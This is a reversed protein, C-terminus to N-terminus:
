LSAKGLSLVQLGSERSVRRQARLQQPGRATWNGTMSSAAEASQPGVKVITVGKQGWFDILGDADVLTDAPAAAWVVENREKFVSFYHAFSDRVAAPPLVIEAGLAVGLSIASIHSYLQNILGAASPM